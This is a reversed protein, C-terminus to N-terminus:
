PRSSDSRASAIIASLQDVASELDDNVVVHRALRRGEEEESRGLEIRRQMHEESDGRRRLRSRQDEISPALLLIAVADPHAELVQRAGEVDIELLVDCSPPPEPNPTGYLHDLVPAWELFGGSEVQSMFTPRDVFHYADDAEGPRKPRTTWSRSLWLHHDRALLERIV